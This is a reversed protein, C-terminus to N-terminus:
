VVKWRDTAATVGDFRMFIIVFRVTLGGTIIRCGVWVLFYLDEDLGNDCEYYERAPFSCVLM